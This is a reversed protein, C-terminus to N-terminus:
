IRSGRLVNQPIQFVDWNQFSSDQKKAVEQASPQCDTPVVVKAKLLDNHVESCRLLNKINTEVNRSVQELWRWSVSSRNNKPYSQNNSWIIIPMFVKSPLTYHTAATYFMTLFPERQLLTIKSFSPIKWM